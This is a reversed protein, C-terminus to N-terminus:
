KVWGQREAILLIGGVLAVLGTVIAPVAVAFLTQLGVIILYVAVLVIGM